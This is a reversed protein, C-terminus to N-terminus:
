WGGSAGGGGFGGSGGSFGGGGFGGGGRRRSGGLISGWLIANFIGGHGRRRGRSLSSVLFIIIFIIFNFSIGGRSSGKDQKEYQRLESDSIDATDTIIGSIASIGNYLGTGFNGSRFEPIIINRIIYGSKVDTM